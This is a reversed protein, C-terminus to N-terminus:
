QGQIHKNESSNRRKKRQGTFAGNIPYIKFHHPSQAVTMILILERRGYGPKSRKMESKPTFRSTDLQLYFRLKEPMQDEAWIPDYGPVNVDIRYKHGPKAAFDVRWVGDQQREFEMEEWRTM